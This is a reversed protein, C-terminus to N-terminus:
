RGVDAGGGGGGGVTGVIGVVGGVCVCVCVCWKRRRGRKGGSCWVVGCWVVGCWVVGGRRWVVVGGRRWVVAGCWWVVVDGGCWWQRIRPSLEATDHQRRVFIRDEVYLSSRQHGM